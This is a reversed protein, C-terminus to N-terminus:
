LASLCGPEPALVDAVIRRNLDFTGPTLGATGVPAGPWTHANDAVVILETCPGCGQGSQLRTFPTLAIPSGVTACGREAAIQEFWKSQPLLGNGGDIPATLDLDGAIAVLPVRQDVTGSCRALVGDDIAPIVMVAARFVGDLRPDCLASLTMGAGNSEGTITIQSRDTCGTAVLADIMNVLAAVDDVGTSAFVSAGTDWAFGSPAVPTGEPYAVTIGAANAAATMNSVREIGTPTGTFGHIVIITPAASVVGGTRLHVRRGSPTSIVDGPSLCPVTPLTTTTTTTTASAATTTSAAATTVPASTTTARQPTATSSVPARSSPVSDTTQVSTNACSAM